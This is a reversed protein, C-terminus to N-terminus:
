FVGNSSYSATFRQSAFPSNFDINQFNGQGAYQDMQTYKGILNGPQTEVYLLKSGAGSDVSGLM